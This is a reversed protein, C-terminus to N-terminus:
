WSLALKYLATSNSKGLVILYACNRLTDKNSATLSEWTFSGDSQIFVAQMGTAASGTTIKSFYFNPINTVNLFFFTAFDSLTGGYYIDVGKEITGFVPGSPTTVPNSFGRQTVIMWEGPKVISDWGTEGSSGYKKLECLKEAM